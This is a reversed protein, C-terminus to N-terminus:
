LAGGAGIEKVEGSDGVQATSNVAASVGLMVSAVEDQTAEDHNFKGKIEGHYMVYVVDSMGLVEPLDSSIMLIAKGKQVLNDMLSHIEVKAGVDIGRTPEDFILLESETDLWKALVVKQQNGGSLFKVRRTVSPTVIRLEKVFQGAVGKIKSDSVLFHRFHLRLSALVVNWAVSFKMTLGFFKRDEPILGVGRRVMEAPSRPTVKKGFLTIEGREIPRIGFIAQALETRGSGVLGAIGVIEGKRVVLDINKPGGRVSVQQLRIAEDGAPRRNRPYMQSINRGVMIRVLDDNSYDKMLGSAAHKGDRLVTVRDGIARIEQLRHSIFIIAIGQQRLEKIRRFLCEVEPETLVATPEDLILIRPNSALVKCLEVMQQIATGFQKMPQRSNIHVDLSELLRRSEQHMRGHDVVIGWRRPERNLFINQAVSLWPVLMFEQHVGGIGQRLAELPRRIRIPKGELLLEGSDQTYAGM